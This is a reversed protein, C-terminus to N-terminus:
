YSQICHQIGMVHVLVRDHNTKLMYSLKHAGYANPLNRVWSERERERERERDTTFIVM